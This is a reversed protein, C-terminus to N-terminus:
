RDVVEHVANSDGSCLQDLFRLETLRRQLLAGSRRRMHEIVNLVNKNRARWDDLVLGAEQVDHMNM